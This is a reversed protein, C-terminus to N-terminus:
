MDCHKHREKYKSKQKDAHIEELPFVNVNLFLAVNIINM